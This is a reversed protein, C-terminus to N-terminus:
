VMRFLLSNQGIVHVLGIDVIATAGTDVIAQSTAITVKNLHKHTPAGFLTQATAAMARQQVPHISTAATGKGQTLIEITTNSAVITINDDVDTPSDFIQTM